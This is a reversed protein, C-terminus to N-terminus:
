MTQYATVEVKQLILILIYIVYQGQRIKTKANRLEHVDQLMPGQGAEVPALM